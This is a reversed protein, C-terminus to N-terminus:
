DAQVRACSPQSFFFSFRRRYALILHMSLQCPVRAHLGRRMWLEGIARALSAFLTRIRTLQALRYGCEPFCVHLETRRQSTGEKRRTRQNAPGTRRIIGGPRRKTTSWVQAACPAIQQQDPELTRAGSIQPRDHALEALPVDQVLGVRSLDPIGEGRHQFVSSYVAVIDTGKDNLIHLSRSCSSYLIILYQAPSALSSSFPNLRM